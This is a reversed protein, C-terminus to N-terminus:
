KSNSYAARPRTSTTRSCWWPYLRTTSLSRTTATTWTASRGASFRFVPTLHLSVYFRCIPYLTLSHTFYWSLTYSSLHSIHPYLTLSHTFYWSLTYSSLHSIHPYLTLLDTDCIVKDKEIRAMGEKLESYRLTSSQARWMQMVHLVQRIDNGVQCLTMNTVINLLHVSQAPIICIRM